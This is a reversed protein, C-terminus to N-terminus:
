GEKVELIKSLEKRLTKLGRHKRALLTGIPVGWEESLQRFSRQNFETELIVRMQSEPLKRILQFVLKRLSARHYSDEPQYKVDPLIDFLSMGSDDHQDLSVTEDGPSRYIDIIRNRLAGFVYASLDAIPALIDPRDLLKLMVDQVIDEGSRRASDRMRGRVYDLLMVYNQRFFDSLRGKRDQGSVHEQSLLNEQDM